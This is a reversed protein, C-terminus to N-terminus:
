LSCPYPRLAPQWSDKAKEQGNARQLRCAILLVQSEYVNRKLPHGPPEDAEAGGLWGVVWVVWQPVGVGGV